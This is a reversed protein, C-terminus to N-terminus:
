RGREEGGEGQRLYAVYFMSARSAGDPKVLPLM